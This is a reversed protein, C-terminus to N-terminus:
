GSRKTAAGSRFVGHMMELGRWNVEMPKRPWEGGNRSRKGKQLESQRRSAAIGPVFLRLLKGDEGHGAQGARGRLFAVLLCSFWMPLVENTGM